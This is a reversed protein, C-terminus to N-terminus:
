VADEVDRGALKVVAKVELLRCLGLLERQHHRLQPVAALVELRVLGDFADDVLARQADAEDAQGLAQNGEGALVMALAVLALAQAQFDHTVHAVLHVLVALLILVVVAHQGCRGLAEAALKGAVVALLKALNRTNGVLNIVGVAVVHGHVVLAAGLVFGLDLCRIVLNRAAAVDEVDLNVAVGSVIRLCDAIDNVQHM